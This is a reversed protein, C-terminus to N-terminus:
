DIIKLLPIESQEDLWNMLGKFATRSNLISKGDIGIQMGVGICGFTDTEYNMPHILIYERGLVNMVHPTKMNLHASFRIEMSYTGAPICPHGPHVVANRSPELSFISTEGYTLVGMTALESSGSNRKLTIMDPLISQDTIIM